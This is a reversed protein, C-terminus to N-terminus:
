KKDDEEMKHLHIQHFVIYAPTAVHMIPFLVGVGAGMISAGLAEPMSPHRKQSTIYMGLVAGGFASLHPGYKIFTELRSM